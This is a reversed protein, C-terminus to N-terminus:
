LSGRITNIKQQISALDSQLQVFDSAQQPPLTPIGLNGIHTHEACVTGVFTGIKSLANVIQQLLEISSTGLAIQGNYMQLKAGGSSTVLVKTGVTYNVQGHVNYQINGGVSVQEDRQILVDRDVGITAKYSGQAVNLEYGTTAISPLSTYFNGNEDIEQRVVDNTKTYWLSQSRLNIATSFQKAINGSSDYVQGETKQLLVQPNAGEPNKLSLFYESQFYTNTPDQIYKESIASNWRKVTGFRIEDGMEGVVNNLLNVKVTPAQTIVQLGDDDLQHKVGVGSRHDLHGRRGYYSFALGSSAIDHEGPNLSRYISNQEAYLAARSPQTVTNGSEDTQLGGQGIPLTKLVEAQGTDFRNIMLFRTGPDPMSRIWSNSGVYPHQVPMQRNSVPGFSVGLSDSDPNVEVVVGEFPASKGQENNYRQLNLRSAQQILTGSMHKKLDRTVSIPTSTLSLWM